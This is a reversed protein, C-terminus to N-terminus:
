KIKSKVQMNRKRQRGLPVLQVETRVRGKPRTQEGLELVTAGGTHRPLSIFLVHLVAEHPKIPRFLDFMEPGSDPQNAHNFFLVTVAIIEILTVDDLLYLRSLILHKFM